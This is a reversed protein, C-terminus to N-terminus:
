YIKREKLFYVKLAKVTYEGGYKYLLCCSRHQGDQIVNDQNIVIINRSNFGNEEISNILSDYREKSMEPLNNNHHYECYKEYESVQHEALYKYPACESLKLTKGNWIRRIDKLKIDIIEYKYIPKTELTRYFFDEDLDFRNDELLRIASMKQYKFKKPLRILRRFIECQNGYLRYGQQLTDICILREVAHALSFNGRQTEEFDDFRIGRQLFHALAESKMAFCTGAVFQYNDMFKQGFYDEVMKRKHPPDFAILNFASIMGIDNNESLLKITKHVTFAGLIGEFLYLFWDRRQFYHRYVFRTKTIGKTHLKYIIDYKSLDLDELLKIFPGIDYGQNKCPILVSDPYSKKIINLVPNNELYDSYSIRLDINYHALRGLYGEVEKWADAYFLHLCVLIKLESSNRITKINVLNGVSTKFKRWFGFKKYRPTNTFNFVTRKEEKGCKEYHILPCINAKKVGSYVNLYVNGDFFPGPNKGEKWGHYLYHVEPKMGAKRVDKYRLRYWIPNFYKSKRIIEVNNPAMPRNELHGFLEYHLLPCMQAKKVDTNAKLYTNGDFSDSPNKGEAWGHYLYHTVADSSIELVEPYHKIYWDADFYKSKKIVEYEGSYKNRNEHVGTELYHCFPCTEVDRNADLYMRSDFEKNPNNGVKWGRYIYHALPDIIDTEENMYNKRYWEEDFQNSLLIINYSDSIIDVDLHEKNKEYHVLPCINKGILRNAELYMEGVFKKSPNYGSRWGWFLYHYVPDYKYPENEMYMHEYWEKDFFLSNKILNYNDTYRKRKEAKGYLEYHVVPCMNVDSNVSLYMRGSFVPSAEKKEKWGKYLYHAYPDPIDSLAVSKYKWMYWDKNFYESNALVQYEKTFYVVDESAKKLYDVFPCIKRKRLEPNADLYMQTVFYKNPNRRQKWGIYLYDAIADSFEGQKVVPYQKYYWEVDFQSSNKILMYEKSYIKRKEYKGIMEYHLLPCLNLERVDENADLYMDTYFDPGPNKGEKWGINLYHKVPNVKSVSKLYHEEYWKGDMYKSRLLMSYAYNEEWNLNGAYNQKLEKNQVNKKEM